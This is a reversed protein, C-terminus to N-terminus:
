QRVFTHGFIRLTDDILTYYVNEETKSISQNVGNIQHVIIRVSLVFDNIEKYDFEQYIERADSETPYSQYVGGSGFLYLTTNEDRNGNQDVAVWRGELNSKTLSQQSTETSSEAGGPNESCGAFLIGMTIVVAFIWKQSKSLIYTSTKM